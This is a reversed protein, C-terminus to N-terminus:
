KSLTQEEAGRCRQKEVGRCRQVVESTGRSFFKQQVEAFRWVHEIVQVFVETEALGRCSQVEVEAGGRLHHLLM